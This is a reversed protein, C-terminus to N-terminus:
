KRNAKLYANIFMDMTDAVTRLVFTSDKGFTGTVGKSWVGAVTQYTKGESTYSVMRHYSLGLHFATGVTNVNVVLFGDGSQEKDPTIGNRQLQLEVKARILEMSLGASRGEEDIKEIIVFIRKPASVELGSAPEAFAVHSSLLCLLAVTTM